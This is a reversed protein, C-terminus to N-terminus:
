ASYQDIVRKLYEVQVVGALKWILEGGKFLALTPVGIV